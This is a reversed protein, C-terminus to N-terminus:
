FNCSSANYFYSSKGDHFDSKTSKGIFVGRRFEESPDYDPSPTFGFQTCGFPTRRRMEERKEDYDPAYRPHYPWPDRRRVDDKKFGELRDAHILQEVRKPRATSIGWRASGFTPVSDQRVKQLIKRQRQGEDEVFPMVTAYRDMPGKPKRVKWHIWQFYGCAEEKKFCTLFVRGNNKESRSLKMRPTFGCECRLSKSWLADCVSPHISHRLEHCIADCSDSTWFVCCDPETCKFFLVGSQDPNLCKMKMDDHIPCMEVYRGSEADIVDASSESIEEENRKVSQKPPKSHNKRLFHLSPIGDIQVKSKKYNEYLANYEEEERTFPVLHGVAQELEGKTKDFVDDETDCIELYTSALRVVREYWFDKEVLHGYKEELVKLSIPVKRTQEETTACRLLNHYRLWMTHPLQDRQTLAATMWMSKKEQADASSVDSQYGESVEEVEIRESQEDAQCENMQVDKSQMVTEKMLESPKQQMFEEHLNESSADDDPLPTTEKLLKKKKISKMPRPGNLKLPRKVGIM